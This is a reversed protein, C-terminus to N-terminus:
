ILKIFQSVKWQSNLILAKELILRHSRGDATFVITVQAHGFQDTVAPADVRELLITSWTIGRTRGEDLVRDFADKVERMLRSEYAASFEQMAASLSEGYVDRHADMIQHFDNLTPFMATYKLSSNHRLATIVQKAFQESSEASGVPQHPSVPEVNCSAVAFFLITSYMINKM